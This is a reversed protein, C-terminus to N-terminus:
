RRVTEVKDGPAMDTLQVTSVELNDLWIVSHNLEGFRM